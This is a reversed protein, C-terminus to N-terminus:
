LHRRSDIYCRIAFYIVHSFVLLLIINCPMLDAEWVLIALCACAVFPSIEDLCHEKYCNVLAKGGFFVGALIIAVCLLVVIITLSYTVITSVTPQHIYKGVNGAYIAFNHILRVTKMFVKGIFKGATIADSIFRKSKIATLVTVLFNYIILVAAAIKWKKRFKSYMQEAKEQILSKEQAKIQEAEFKQSKAEDIERKAKSAELNARKEREESQKKLKVAYKLQEDSSQLSENKATLQQVQLQLEQNGSLLTQIQQQQESLKKTLTQIKLLATQLELSKKQTQNNMQESQRLKARLNENETQLDETMELLAEVEEPSYTPLGSSEQM